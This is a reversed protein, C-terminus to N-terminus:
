NFAPHSKIFSYPESKWLRLSPHRIRFQLFWELGACGHIKWSQPVTLENKLAREYAAKRVDMPTMGYCMRACTKIYDAFMLEMEPSFFRKLM